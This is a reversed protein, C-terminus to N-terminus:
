QTQRRGRRSAAPHPPPWPSQSPGGTIIGEALFVGVTKDQKRLILARHTEKEGTFVHMRVFEIVDADITTRHGNKFHVEVMM